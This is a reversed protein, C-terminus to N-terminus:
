QIKKCTIIINDETFTKKNKTYKIDFKDKIKINCNSIIKKIEKVNEKDTKARKLWDNLNHENRFNEVDVVKLKSKEIMSLWEEKTYSRMHTPDRIKNINNIFKDFIYDRSSIIDILVFMGNYKLVRYVESLFKNVNNFHHPAYRCTILDFHEKKFLLKEAGMIKIEINAIDLTNINKESERIMKPTIDVAIVKNVYKSFKIAVHGAGTAVDLMKMNKKPKAFKIIMDLDKGTSFLSDVSYNISTKSFQEITHKHDSYDLDM